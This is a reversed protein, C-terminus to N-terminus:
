YDLAALVADTADGGSSATPSEEEFLGADEWLTDPDPAEWAAQESVAAIQPGAAPAIRPPAKRLVAPALVVLAAAAAIAIGAAIRKGLGNGPHSRRFARLTTAALDRVALQEASTPPPLKALSLTGALADAEARCAPCLALHEEVRRAEEPELAGAARLSLLVEFDRCATV